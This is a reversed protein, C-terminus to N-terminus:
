ERYGKQAEGIKEQIKGEVQQNVGRARLNESNVIKGTTEKVKGVAQKTNGQIENKTSDKMTITSQPNILRLLPTKRKSPGFYLM